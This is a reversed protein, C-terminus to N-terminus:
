ADSGPSSPEFRLELRLDKAVSDLEPFLTAWTIGALRLQTKIRAKADAPVRSSEFSGRPFRGANPSHFTFCTGQQLMRGARLNPLVPFAAPAEPPGLTTRPAEFLSLLQVDVDRSSVPHAHWDEGLRFTYTPSLSHIVGDEDQDDAVAFFLATLPGTTWDLLRTPLGHHQALIYIETSDDQDVPLMSAGRRLFEQNLKREFEILRENDSQASRLLGPVLDWDWRSHGRWWRRPRSELYGMLNEVSAVVRLGLTNQRLATLPNEDAANPGSM